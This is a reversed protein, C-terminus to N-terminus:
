CSVEVFVQGVPMTGSGEDGVEAVGSIPVDLAVRGIQGAHAAAQARRPLSHRRHAQGRRWDLELTPLLTHDAGLHHHGILVDQHGGRATLLEDAPRNRSEPWLRPEEAASM